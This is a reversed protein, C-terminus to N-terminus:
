PQWFLRKCRRQRWIAYHIKKVDHASPVAKLVDFVSTVMGYWDHLLADIAAQRSILDDM